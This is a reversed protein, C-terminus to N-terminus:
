SQRDRIYDVRRRADLCSFVPNFGHVVGILLAVTVLAIGIGTYRLASLAPDPSNANIVRIIDAAGFLLACCATVILRM